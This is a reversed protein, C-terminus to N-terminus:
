KKKLKKKKKKGGFEVTKITKSEKPLHYESIITKAYKTASEEFNKM